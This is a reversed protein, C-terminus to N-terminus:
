ERREACSQRRCVLCGRVWSEHTFSKLETGTLFDWIRVENDWGSSAIKTGDPSWALDTLLNTHGPLTKIELGARWDWIKIQGDRSGSALYEGQPSFAVVTIASTHGYMTSVQQGDDTRWIRVTRDYGGSAVFQDDASFALAEVRDWHSDFSFQKGWRSFDPEAWPFAAFELKQGGEVAQKEPLFYYGTKRPIIVADEFVAAEFNGEGDTELYSSPGDVIFLSVGALGTGHDEALVVRGSVMSAEPATDGQVCGSVPLALLVLAIMLSLGKSKRIM